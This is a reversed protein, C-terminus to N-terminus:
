HSKENDFILGEQPRKQYAITEAALKKENMAENLIHIRYNLPILYWDEPLISDIKKILDTPAINNQRGYAQEILAYIIEEDM